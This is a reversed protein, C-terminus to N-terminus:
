SGAEGRAALQTRIAAHRERTMDYPWFVWLAAVVMVVIGVYVLGFNFLVTEPVEGPVSNAPFRVLDLTLGAFLTGLATTCKQAFSHSGFYVGEQRTGHALEHEDAIDGMMSAGSAAAHIAGFFSFVAAVMLIPVLVQPDTPMWGALALAVPVTATATTLIVGAILTQRKDFWRHFRGIFLLGALGGLLASYQAYEISETELLWFFTWLHMNLANHVGFYVMFLLTGWFLAAFSPNRLAMYLDRYVQGLSFPPRAEAVRSLGQGAALTGWASVVMMGSMVAASLLAYRFYPARELQPSPNEPTEVFFFNWALAVVTISALMGFATRLAVIQTREQYDPSLEAGLSLYPVHFFTLATRSLVAFVTFWLFLQFQSLGEPPWFLFFYFIGLPVAGGLMFLHRRGWRHRFGDSWSGIAPDTVADFGIAIFVAIGSWTGSLGLVQNYYLLLLTGFGYTKISEAAQGLGYFAKTRWNM